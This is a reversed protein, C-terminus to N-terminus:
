KLEWPSMSEGEYRWSYEFEQTSIWSDYIFKTAYRLACPMYNIWGASSIIIVRFLKVRYESKIWGISPLLEPWQWLWYAAGLSNISKVCVFIARLSKGCSEFVSWDPATIRRRRWIVVNEIRTEYVISIRKIALKETEVFEVCEIRHSKSDVPMPEREGHATYKCRM